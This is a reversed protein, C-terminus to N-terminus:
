YLCLTMCNHVMDFRLQLGVAVILFDYKIQFLFPFNYIVKFKKHDLNIFM